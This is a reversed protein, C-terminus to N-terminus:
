FILLRGSFIASLLSISAVIIFGFFNVLALVSYAAPEESETRASGWAPILTAMAYLWLLTIAVVILLWQGDHRPEAVWDYVVFAPMAVFGAIEVKRDSHKM